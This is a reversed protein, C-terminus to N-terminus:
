INFKCFQLLQNEQFTGGEEEEKKGWSDFTSRVFDYFNIKKFISIYENETRSSINYVRM